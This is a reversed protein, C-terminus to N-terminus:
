PAPSKRCRSAPHSRAPALGEERMIREVNEVVVIADDVLLGIVLVMGFMTLTNITYGSSALSASPASCCWRCPSAPVLTARWNQLFLYMVLIVLLIAEVLTIM